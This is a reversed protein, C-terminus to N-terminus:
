SRRRLVARVIVDAAIRAILLVLTIAAALVTFGALDPSWAPSYFQYSYLEAPPPDIHLIPDSGPPLNSTKDIVCQAYAITNTSKCEEQAASYAESSAASGSNAAEEVMKKVARQYSETLQVPESMRTNMHAMMYGRLEKLAANVDKNEKDATVVAKRREVMGLSNQRLFVVSAVVLMVFLVCLYSIKIVQTRRWWHHLSSKDIAV